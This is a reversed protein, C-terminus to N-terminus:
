MLFNVVSQVMAIKTISEPDTIVGIFPIVAGISMLEAFASLFMLIILLISQLRRKSSFHLFLRHILHIM